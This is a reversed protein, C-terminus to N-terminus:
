RCKLARELADAVEATDAPNVLLADPLEMPARCFAFAGTRRSKGSGSQCRVGQRGPEHWRAITHGSRSARQPLLRDARTPFRNNIYRIPVWDPTAYMGNIHGASRELDRRIQRYEPV